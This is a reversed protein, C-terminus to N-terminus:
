GEQSIAPRGPSSGHQYAQEDPPQHQRGRDGQGGPQQGAEVDLATQEGVEPHREEEPEDVHDDPRQQVQQRQRERDDREAQEGQDHVGGQDADGRPDAAVQADVAEERGEEGRDQDRDEARDQRDHDRVPVSRGRGLATRREQVVGVLVKAIFGILVLDVAMQGTVVVRAVNSRAAIDGFGVTAFVTVTFYVADLRSLPETFAASDANGLEVYATAFPLLLLPLAIVVAEIGRLGPETSHLIARIEWAVVALLALLAMALQVVITLDLRSGIPAVVYLLLCAGTVSVARTVSAVVAHRRTTREALDGVDPLSGAMPRIM